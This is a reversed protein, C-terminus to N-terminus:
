YAGSRTKKAALLLHVATGHCDRQRWCIDNTISTDFSRLGSSLGGLTVSTLM